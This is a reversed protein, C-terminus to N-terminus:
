LKHTYYWSELFGLWMNNRFIQIQPFILILYDIEILMLLLVYIQFYFRSRQCKPFQGWVGLFIVSTTYIIYGSTQNKPHGTRSVTQPNLDSLPKHINFLFPFYWSGSLSRLSNGVVERTYWSVSKNVNSFNGLTRYCRDFGFTIEGSTKQLNLITGVYHSGINFHM